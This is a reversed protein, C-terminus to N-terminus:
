GMTGQAEFEPKVNQRAPKFLGRSKRNLVGPKTRNGRTGVHITSGNHLIAHKSVSSGCHHEGRSAAAIAQKWGEVQARRQSLIDKLVYNGSNPNTNKGVRVHFNARVVGFKTVLNPTTRALNTPM